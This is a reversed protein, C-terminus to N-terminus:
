EESIGGNINDYMDELKNKFSKYEQLTEECDSNEELM